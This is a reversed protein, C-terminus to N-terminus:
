MPRSSSSAGDVLLQSILDRVPYQYVDLRLLPKYTTTYLMEDWVTGLRVGFWNQLNAVIEFPTGAGVILLTLIYM